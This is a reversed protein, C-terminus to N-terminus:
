GRNFHGKFPYEVKKPLLSM